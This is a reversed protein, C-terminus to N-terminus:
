ESCYGFYYICTYLLLYLCEFIVWFSKRFSLGKSDNKLALGKSVGQININCFIIVEFIFYSSIWKWNSSYKCSLYLDFGRQINIWASPTSTKYFLRGKCRNQFSRLTDQLAFFSILSLYISYGGHIYARIAEPHM